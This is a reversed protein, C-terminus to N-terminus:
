VVVHLYSSPNVQNNSRLSSSADQESRRHRLPKSGAAVFGAAGQVEPLMMEPPAATVDMAQLKTTSSWAM